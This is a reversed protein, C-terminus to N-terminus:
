MNPARWHSPEPKPRHPRQEKRPPMPVDVPMEIQRHPAAHQAERIARRAAWRPVLEDLFSRVINSM